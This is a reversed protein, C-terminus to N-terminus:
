YGATRLFLGRVAYACLADSPPGLVRALDIGGFSRSLLGSGIGAFILTSAGSRSVTRTINEEILAKQREWAQGAISVAAGTGIEELDACVHRALRRLAGQVTKAGGDPAPVTYIEETIHGLVLHVDATIAFRESALLTKKGNVDASGLIAPVPTRLLGTYVLYGEGLRALDSMGLLEEFLGLPIIDTTTSGMDVLVADPYEERLFDASALWNAASLEPVPDDHFKGDIGYFRAKPFVQRVERVIYEIGRQKTAFSDAEEGSMVVAAEDGAYQSLITGLSTGEWLPCYHLHIAEGDAVKLNAGGVDIGIMCVSGAKQMM